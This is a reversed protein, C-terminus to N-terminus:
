ALRSIILEKVTQDAAAMERAGRRRGTQADVAHKLVVHDSESGGRGITPELDM